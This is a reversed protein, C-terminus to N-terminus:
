GDAAAKDGKPFTALPFRSFVDTHQGKDRDAMRVAPMHCVSCEDEIAQKSESSRDDGGRKGALLSRALTRSAQAGSSARDFHGEGESTKMGNHCAVCRESTRFVTGPPVKDGKANETKTQGRLGTPAAALLLGLLISGVAGIARITRTSNDSPIRM